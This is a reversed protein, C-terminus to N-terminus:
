RYKHLRMRLREVPLYVTKGRFGAAARDILLSSIVRQQTHRSLEKGFWKHWRTYM